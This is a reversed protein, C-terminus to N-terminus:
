NKNTSKKQLNYKDYSTYCNFIPHGFKLGLVVKTVVVVLYIFLYIVWMTNLLGMTALATRSVAINNLSKNLGSIGFFFRFAALGFHYFSKKSHMNKVM